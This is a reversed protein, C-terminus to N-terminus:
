FSDDDGVELDKLLLRIIQRDEPAVLGNYDINEAELLVWAEQNCKGGRFTMSYFGGM